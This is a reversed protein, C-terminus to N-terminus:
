HLPDEAIGDYQFCGAPAATRLQRPDLKIYKGPILTGDKNIWSLVAIPQDGIHALDLVRAMTTEGRRIKVYVRPRGRTDKLDVGFFYCAAVAPEYLASRSRETM